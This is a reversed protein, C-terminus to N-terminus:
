KCDFKNILMKRARNLRSKVTGPPIDLVASIEQVKLEDLYFLHIMQKELSPLRNIALRLDEHEVSSERNNEVCENEDFVEANNTHRGAERMLDISCWRVLSYLWSKLTRPDNLKRINKSLKIWAEQTADQAIDKDACVRYAYRLLLKHYRQCILNFAKQNGNQAALVLLDEEAQHM